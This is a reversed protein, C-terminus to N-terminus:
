PCISLCQNMCHMAWYLILPLQPWTADSKWKYEVSLRWRWIQRMPKANCIGCRGFRPHHCDHCSRPSFWSCSQFMRSYGVWSYEFDPPGLQDWKSSEWESRIGSSKPAQKRCQKLSWTLQTVTQDKKQLAQWTMASDIRIQVHPNWLWPPLGIAPHNKNPFIGHFHIIVPPEGM